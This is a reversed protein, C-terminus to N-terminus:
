KTSPPEGWWRFFYAMPRVLRQLSSCSTVLEDFWDRATSDSKVETSTVFTQGTRRYYKTLQDCIDDDPVKYPSVTRTEAM